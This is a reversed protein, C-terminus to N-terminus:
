PQEEEDDGVRAVLRRAADLAHAFDITEEARAFSVQSVFQEYEAAWFPQSALLDLMMAFRDSAQAPATGGGRGIDYATARRVLDIFAPTAAVHAELAGLDHLHRIITPDDKEGGRHRTCVRWALASLKDAATEVVDVCAFSAVEPAQRQLEAILSRVPRMVPELAPAQMSMEVKLHPRLGRAPAFSTPYNFNAGFFRGEDAKMVEGELEFGAAQLAKIILARYEQRRTRDKSKSAAPPIAVKFDIDESFRKILGWAKSLSTGGSFAPKADGHDIAALVGIARVVHWDKEVLGPSTLLDAAVREVLRRDLVNSSSISVM